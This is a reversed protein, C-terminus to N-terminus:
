NAATSLEKQSPLPIVKISEATFEKAKANSENLWGYLLFALLGGALQFVLFAPVDLARIGAGSETFVRAITVAPNAFCTSSTAFIAGVIYLVTAQASAQPKLKATTMIIGILGFTALLEGTWQGYGTRETVAMSVPALEFMLNALIVGTTAGTIQVLSYPLVWKWGLNGQAAQLLTVLPNFHNSHAGFMIILSYLMSGVAAAICLLNVTENSADVKNVLLGSGVITALLFATGLFECVLKKGM